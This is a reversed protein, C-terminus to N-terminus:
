VSRANRIEGGFAAANPKLAATPNTSSATRTTKILPPLQVAGNAACSGPEPGVELASGAEDPTAGGSAVVTARILEGVAAAAAVEVGSSTEGVGVRLAVRVGVIVRVISGVGM